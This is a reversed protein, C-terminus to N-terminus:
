ASFANVSADAAQVKSLLSDLQEQTVQNGAALQAKLDTIETTIAAFKTSLDASLQDVAANVADLPNTTGM